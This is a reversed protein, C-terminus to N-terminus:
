KKISKGAEVMFPVVDTGCFPLPLVEEPLSVSSKVNIDIM